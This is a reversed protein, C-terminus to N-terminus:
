PLQGIRDVVGKEELSRTEHYWGVQQWEGDIKKASSGKLRLGLYAYTKPDFVFTFTSKPYSVAIGRRGLGDVEHYDLRIDPIKAVAEFTAAELGPPMVRPGMMLMCANMFAMDDADPTSKQEMRLWKLLKDPDTPWKALKAYETPPWMVEHKGLPPDNHIKGYEERRSRKSGDVSLWSEDTWTKVKGGKVYTRVIYIKSYLYQDNRPIPMGAGDARSRDAAKHLLQAASLATMRPTSAGGDRRAAVVIGGAVAATATGAVAVRLMLRRSLAGPQRERVIARQLRVRAASRADDTLPPVDAELERVATLDDM